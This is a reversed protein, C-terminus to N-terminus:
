RASFTLVGDPYTIRLETGDVEFTEAAGMAMLFTQEMDMAGEPEMCFMMTSGMPGMTLTSGDTEYGGFYSNCGAKGTVQGEAFEATAEVGDPPAQGDAYSALLWTEDEPGTVTATCAASALLVVSIALAALWTARKNM